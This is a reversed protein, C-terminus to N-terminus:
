PAAYPVTVTATGTLATGDDTCVADNATCDTGSPGLTIVVDDTGTPKFNFDFLDMRDDVRVGVKMDAGSVSLARRLQKKTGAALDRTFQLRITFVDSGDHSDPANQFTMTFEDSAEGESDSEGADSAAAPGPVTESVTGTLATGDGACVADNATCDTSSPGLSITMDDNGTPEFKVTYLDRADEVRRVSKVTGGTASLARRLKRGSGDALERTFAVQFTFATTGDHGEPLQRFEAELASAEEGDGPDQGAGAAEGTEGAGSSDEPGPVEVTTTGTLATGGSTCVADAATCDTPSPGLSITVDDNGTPEFTFDFLDLRDDVRLARKTNAGSVSLLNRLGAKTGSAVEASFKLRVTFATTGDHSAPVRQFEVTLSADRIKGLGDGYDIEAGSPNSLTLNVTEGDGEAVDDDQITISITKTTEGAAFTLTGNRATYDSGAAATGDSTAYAVTVTESAAPSLTVVFDLTADEGEVAEPDSVRLMPGLETDETNRITGTAVGDYIAAGSPGSLILSMTEGDDEVPDDIIPVSVTKATEGAGFRLKGTATDYDSGPTATGAATTYDVTVPVTEAPSLMVWFDLSADEGETAVADSVSLRPDGDNDIMAVAIETSHRTNLSVGKPLLGFTIRLSEGPDIDADELVEILFGQRFSGQHDDEHPDIAVWAPVRYDEGTAGGLREVTLPIVLRADPRRDARVHPYTNHVGERIALISNSFHVRVAPVDRNDNLHVVTSPGEQSVGRPLDSFRIELTDYIDRDDDNVATVTFTKETDTAGFTVSGPVGSYDRSRMEYNSYHTTLPIRVRRGPARDLKVTVEANAGGEVARYSGAGFSVKVPTGEGSDALHVVTRAPGRGVKVNSPFGRGFQILVSEGYENRGDDAATVEFSTRTTGPAFSVSSPVGSFDATSAGGQPTPTWLPLTLTQGARWPRSLGVTVTASQGGETATYSAKEFWAQWGSGGSLEHISVTASVPSGLDVGDPPEGLELLLSEGSDPGDDAATVTFSQSSSGAPFTISATVGSYDASSAGDRETTTLPVTVESSAAPSLVVTVVVGSGEPAFYASDGFRLTPTTPTATSGTMSASWDGIGEHNVARVQVQYLTEMELGAITATAGSAGQPGDQWVTDGARRYRLDYGTIAPRGANDPANWSVNLSTPSGSAVTPPGPTLPPEVLDIIEVTVDIYDNGGWTDHVMLRLRYSSQTEYDILGTAETQPGIIYQGLRKTGIRGTFLDVHFKSVDGKALTYYLQDGDPDTARVWPGVGRSALDAPPFENPGLRIPGGAHEGIERTTSDGELFRPPDNTSVPSPVFRSISIIYTTLVTNPATVKVKVTQSRRTINVQHEPKTTDADVIPVGISDVVAITAGTHNAEVTPIITIRDVESRLSVAYETELPSFAPSLRLINDDNDKIELNALSDNDRITGTGLPRAFVVNPSPGPSRELLMGVTEDVEDEGDDIITVSVTKTAEGAAFNLEITVPSYDLTPEATQLQTSASVTLAERPPPSLTVVFDLTNGSGEAVEADSVTLRPTSQLIGRVEIMMSTSGLINGGSRLADEILWGAAGMQDNDSVDGFELDSAINADIDLNVIYETQADLTTDDPADFFNVEGATPEPSELNAVLEGLDNSKSDDFEHIRLTMSDINGLNVAHGYVGISTLEYGRNHTGTTFRQGWLGNTSDGVRVRGERTLHTNKVLTIDESREVVITYTENESEDESTVKIKFTNEGPSLDM